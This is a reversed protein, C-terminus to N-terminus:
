QNCWCILITQLAILAVYILTGSFSFYLYITELTYSRTWPLTPIVACGSMALKYIRAASGHRVGHMVISSRSATFGHIPWLFFALDCSIRSFLPKVYYPSVKAMPDFKCQESGTCYKMPQSEIKVWTEVKQQNLVYLLYDAIVEEGIVHDPFTGLFDPFYLFLWRFIIPTTM